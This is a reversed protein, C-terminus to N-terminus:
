SRLKQELLTLFVHGNAVADLSASAPKGNEGLGDILIKGRELRVGGIADWGVSRKGFALGGAGLRFRGFDVSEEAALRRNVEPLMGALTQRSVLLGFQAAREAQTSWIEFVTGERHTLRDHTTLFRNVEVFYVYSRMDYNQVHLSAVDAWRWISFRGGHDVVFGGAYVVAYPKLLALQRVIWWGAFGILGGVILVGVLKGLLYQNGVICLSAPICCVFAVFAPKLAHQHM